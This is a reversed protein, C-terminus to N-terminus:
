SRKLDMSGRNKTKKLSQRRVAIRSARAPRV